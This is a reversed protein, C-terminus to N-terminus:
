HQGRRRAHPGSRGGIRQTVEEAPDVDHEGVRGGLLLGELAQAQDPAVDVVREVEPFGRLEREATLPGGARPDLLVLEHRHEGIQQLAREHPTHRALGTQAAAHFHPIQVLAHRTVHGGDVGLESAPVAVLDPELVTQNM